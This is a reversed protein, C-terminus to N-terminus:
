VMYSVEEESELDILSALLSDYERQWQQFNKEDIQLSEPVAHRLPHELRAYFFLYIFVCYVTMILAFSITIYIVSYTGLLLYQLIISKIIEATRSVSYQTPM